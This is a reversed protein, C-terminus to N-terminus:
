SARAPRQISLRLEIQRLEVLFIEIAQACTDGGRASTPDVNRNHEKLAPADLLFALHTVRPPTMRKVPGVVDVAHISIQVAVAFTRLDVRNLRRRPDRFELM